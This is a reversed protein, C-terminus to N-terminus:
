AEANQALGHVARDGAQGLYGFPLVRGPQRALAKGAEDLCQLLQMTRGLRVVHRRFAQGPGPKGEVFQQGALQRESQHARMHATLGPATRGALTQQARPHHLRQGVREGMRLLEGDVVDDVIQSQRLAHRCAAKM